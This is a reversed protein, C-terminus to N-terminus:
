GDGSRLRFGTFAGCCGSRRTDRHASPANAAEQERAAVGSDGVTYELREHHQAREADEGDHGENEPLQHLAGLECQVSKAKLEEILGIEVRCGAQWGVPVRDVAVEASQREDVARQNGREQRKNSATGSDIPTATKRVSIHGPKRRPGSAKRVSNSAAMGLMM